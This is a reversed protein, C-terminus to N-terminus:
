DIIIGLLGTGVCPVYIKGPQEKHGFVPHRPIRSRRSEVLFQKGCVACKVRVQQGGINTM